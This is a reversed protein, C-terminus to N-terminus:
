LTMENDVADVETAGITATGGLDADGLALKGRSAAHIDAAPDVAIAQSPRDDFATGIAALM